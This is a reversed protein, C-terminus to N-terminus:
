FQRFLKKLISCFAGGLSCHTVVFTVQLPQLMTINWLIDWGMKLWSHIRSTKSNATIEFQAPYIQFLLKIEITVAPLWVITSINDGSFLANKLFVRWVPSILFCQREKNLTSPFFNLFLAKWFCPHSNIVMHNVRFVLNCELMEAVTIAGNETKEPM